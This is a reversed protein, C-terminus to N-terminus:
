STEQLTTGALLEELFRRETCPWSQNCTVCTSLDRPAYGVVQEDTFTEFAWCHLADKHPVDKGHGPSETCHRVHTHASRPHNECQMPETRAGCDHVGNTTHRERMATVLENLDAM